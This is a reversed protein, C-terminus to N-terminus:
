VSLGSGPTHWLGHMGSCGRM